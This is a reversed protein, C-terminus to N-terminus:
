SLSMPAASERYFSFEPSEAVFVSKGGSEAGPPDGTVTEGGLAAALDDKGSKSAKDALEEARKKAVALAEIRKKAAVVQERIGPEDLTPIHAPSNQVKWCLVIDSTPTEVEFVKCLQESTFAEKVITPSQGPM